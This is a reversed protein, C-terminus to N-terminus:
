SITALWDKAVVDPAAADVEIKVMLAKLGDTDLQKNVNDLTSELEPTVVDKRVLPLVAENPVSNKDDKLAVFGGTTIISM